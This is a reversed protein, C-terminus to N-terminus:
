NVTVPINEHKVIALLLEHIEALHRSIELNQLSLKAQEAKIESTTKDYKQQVGVLMGINHNARDIKTTQSTLELQLQENSLQTESRLNNIQPHFNLSNILYFPNFFNL